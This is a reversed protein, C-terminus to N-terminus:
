ARATEGRAARLAFSIFFIVAATVIISPGAPTDLEFSGWLGVAGAVVGIVAAGVAMQEPSRAIVRAAAAPIILMSTILLVGVVNMAIAIMLAMLAMYIIRYRLAAIGEARALDENITVALLPRWILALVGLLVLGAGWILAVENWGVALIDGFLYGMLDVRLWTMLAIVCLGVSLATHALIGLLTDTPIRGTHQLAVLALAIALTVAVVGITPDVGFLFGLGIGLLASHAMTDGFYAIRRWVVFCGLPGAFLAVGTAALLARVFFDESM